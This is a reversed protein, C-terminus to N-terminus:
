QKTSSIRSINPYTNSFSEFFGFIALIRDWNRPLDRNDLYPPM